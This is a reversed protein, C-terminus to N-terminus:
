INTSGSTFQSEVSMPRFPLQGCVAPTVKSWSYRGDLRSILCSLWRQNCICINGSIIKQGNMCISHVGRTRGLLLSGVALGTGCDWQKGCAVQVIKVFFEVAQEVNLKDLRQSKKQSSNWAIM